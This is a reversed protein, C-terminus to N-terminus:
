VSYVQNSENNGRNIAKLQGFFQMDEWRKVIIDCYSPDIEMGYCKRDLQECAILTTGSGLFPDLVTQGDTHRMAWSIVDLPKQTPHFRKENDKRIMGNWRHRIIRVAKKLNTWALECDAFDNNGNEKDWVLWCSTPPLQYYNGGFVIQQNSLARAIKIGIDCTTNDWTKNGYDKAVALNSRSVNKGAAEGIGYPPDTLLLDAKTGDLLRSVDDLETADGCLLRHDGLIWLDGKNTLTM